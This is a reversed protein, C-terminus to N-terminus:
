GAALDGLAKGAYKRVKVSPADTAVKRLTPVYKANRSAALSRCYWAAIDEEDSDREFPQLYVKLLKAEVIDHLPTPDDKLAKIAKLGERELPPDSASVMNRARTTDWSEGPLHGATANIIPNWRAFDAIRPLTNEAHDAIRGPVQALQELTPRYKESGAYALAKLCWGAEQEAERDASGARGDAPRHQKYAAWVNKEIRDYVAADTIGSFSLSKCAAVREDRVPSGLADLARAIEASRDPGESAPGAACAASLQFALALGALARPLHRM